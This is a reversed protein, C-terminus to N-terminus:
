VFKSFGVGFKGSLREFQVRTNGKGAAWEIWAKDPGVM